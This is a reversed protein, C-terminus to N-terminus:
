VLSISGCPIDFMRFLIVSTMVKQYRRSLSTALNEFKQQNWRIAMLSLM